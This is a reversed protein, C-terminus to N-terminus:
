RAGRKRRKEILDELKESNLHVLPEDNIQAAPGNACLGLCYVPELTIEGDGTTEGMKIGLHNQAHQGLEIGGVAQCGEAQCLRIVHRGPPSSRFDTYFSIVGHVEALSLNYHEALLPVAQEDIYQFCDQLARLAGTLTKKQGLADTILATASHQNWRTM